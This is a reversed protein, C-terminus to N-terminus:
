KFKNDFLSTQYFTSVNLDVTEINKIVKEFFYNSDFSSIIETPLVFDKKLLWKIGDISTYMKIINNLDNFKLLVLENESKFMGLTTGIPFSDSSTRSQYFNLDSFEKEIINASPANQFNVKEQIWINKNEGECIREYPVIFFCHNYTFFSNGPYKNFDFRWFSGSWGTLSSWNIGDSSLWIDHSLYSVSKSSSVYGGIIVLQDGFSYVGYGNLDGWPAIEHLTEWVVGDKSSLITTLNEEIEVVSYRNKYFSIFMFLSDKYSVIKEIQPYQKSFTKQPIVIPGMDIWDFGDASSWLHYKMKPQKKDINIGTIALIHNKHPLIYLFSNDTNYDNIVNKFISQRASWNELDYSRHIDGTGINVFLFLNRKDKNYKNLLLGNDDFLHIKEKNKYIYWLGNDDFVLLSDQPIIFSEQTQSDYFGAKEAVLISHQKLPELVNTIFIKNRLKIFAQMFGKSDIPIEILGTFINDEQKSNIEKNLNEDTIEPKIVWFDIAVMIIITLILITIFVAKAM